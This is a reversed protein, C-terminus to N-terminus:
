PQENWGKYRRGTLYYPNIEYRTQARYRNGPSDVRIVQGEKLQKIGMKVTSMPVGTKAVLEEHSWKVIKGEQTDRRFRTAMVQFIVKSYPRLERWTNSHLLINNPIGVFKGSIAYLGKKTEAM